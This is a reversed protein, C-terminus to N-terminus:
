IFNTLFFIIIIVIRIGVYDNLFSFIPIKYNMLTHVIFDITYM